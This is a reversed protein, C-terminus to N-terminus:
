RRRVDRGRGEVSSSAMRSDLRIWLAREPLVWWEVPLLDDPGRVDVRVLVHELAAVDLVPPRRALDRVEHQDLPELLAHAVHDLKDTRPKRLRHLTSQSGEALINNFIETNPSASPIQLSHLDPQQIYFPSNTSYPEQDKFSGHGGAHM